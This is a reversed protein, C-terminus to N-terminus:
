EATNVLSFALECLEPAMKIMLPMPLKKNAYSVNVSGAQADDFCM